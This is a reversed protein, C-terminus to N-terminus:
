MQPELIHAFPSARGSCDAFLLGTASTQDHLDLFSAHRSVIPTAPASSSPEFGALLAGLSSHGIAGSAGPARCHALAPMSGRELLPLASVSRQVGPAATEAPDDFISALEPDSSGMELDLYSPLRSRSPEGLLNRSVKFLSAASGDDDLGDDDGSAGPGRKRKRSESAEASPEGLSPFLEEAVAGSNFPRFPAEVSPKPTTVSAYDERLQAATPTLRGVQPEVMTLSASDLGMTLLEEDALGARSSSRSTTAPKKPTVRNAEALGSSVAARVDARPHVAIKTPAAMTVNPDNDEDGPQYYGSSAELSPKLGDDDRAAELAAPGSPEAEVGEEYSYAYYYEAEDHPLPKSPWAYPDLESVRSPKKFASAKADANGRLLQPAGAMSVSRGLNVPPMFTQPLTSSSSSKKRIVRRRIMQGRASDPAPHPPVLSTMVTAARMTNPTALEVRTAGMSGNANPIPVSPPRPRQPASGAKAKAKAKSTKPTKPTKPAKAAKPAKSAKAGTEAVPKRAPAAGGHQPTAAAAAGDIPPPHETPAPHSAIGKRQKPGKSFNIDVHHRVYTQHPLIPPLVTLCARNQAEKSALRRVLQTQNQLWNAREAQWPGSILSKCMECEGGCEEFHMYHIPFAMEHREVAQKRNAIRPSSSFYECNAHRCIHDDRGGDITWEEAEFLDRCRPCDGGCEAVHQSHLGFRREHGAMQRPDLSLMGCGTHQCEYYVVEPSRSARKRARTTGTPKKKTTPAAATGLAKGAKKSVGAKKKSAKKSPSGAPNPKALASQESGSVIVM